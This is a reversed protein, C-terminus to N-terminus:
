GTTKGMEIHVVGNSLLYREMNQYPAENPLDTRTWDFFRIGYQRLTADVGEQIATAPYSPVDRFCDVNTLTFFEVSNGSEAVSRLIEAETRGANRIKAMMSLPSGM